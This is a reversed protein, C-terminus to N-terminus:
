AHGVRWAQQAEALAVHGMGQRSLVLWTEGGCVAMTGCPLLGVDGIRALLPVPLPAGLVATALGCMGGLPALLRRAQRETSYTGRLGQAPDTGLQAAVADAAWLVCDHVGWAFRAGMRDLVLQQLRQPADPLRPLGTLAQLIIRGAM